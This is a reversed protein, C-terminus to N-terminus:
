PPSTGPMGEALFRKPRADLWRSGRRGYRQAAEGIPSGELLKGCPGYRYDMLAHQDM